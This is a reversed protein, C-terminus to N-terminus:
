GVNPIIAVIRRAEDVIVVQDRVILFQSGHYGGLTDAMEMPLDHLQVQRPVSAGVSITFDATQVRAEGRAGLQARIRRRQEDNLRLERATGLVEQSRQEESKGTTADLKGAQSMGSSQQSRQGTANQAQDHNRWDYRSIGFLVAVMLVTAAVWGLISRM